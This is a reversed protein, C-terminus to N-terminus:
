FPKECFVHLGRELAERVLPAHLRSPTAIVIADLAVANLMKKFDTYGSIGTYKKLVDLIYGTPDCVAVVAVDPHANLISLHSVGMKGLGVVAIRVM